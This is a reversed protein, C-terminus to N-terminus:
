PHLFGLITPLSQLLLTLLGQWDVAAAAPTGLHPGYQAKWAEFAATCGNLDWFPVGCTQMSRHAQALAGAPAPSQPLALMQLIAVVDALAAAADQAKLDAILKEILALM